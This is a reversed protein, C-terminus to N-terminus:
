TLYFSIIKKKYLIYTCWPVISCVAYQIFLSLGINILICLTNILYLNQMNVDFDNEICDNASTEQTTNNM